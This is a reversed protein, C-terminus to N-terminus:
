VEALLISLLIIMWGMIWPYFMSNSFLSHVLLTIFSTSLIIFQSNKSSLKAIKLLSIVFIILGVVGTTALVFLISSDSGSCAHSSFEQPGIYKQNALCLNDYGIGFVPSKLFLKFTSGYNEFRSLVSFSRMFEISHNRSTPLILILAGLVFVPYILYKIKKHIYLLYSVGVLFALYSARSYTFALSIILFLTALLYNRDKTAIFRHITIILGFVIILGLFTPDLFTGVLRFLHMDWGWAFFPKLDPFKFFQVWGFIASTLSILLLSNLLLEKNSKKSQVFNWVYVGFYCYAFLRVLYLIGYLVELQHFFFISFIFSVAAFFLFLKFVTVFNPIRQHKFISYLAAIGVILDIPQLIGIRIIQGFPFLILFLFIFINDFNLRKTIEM